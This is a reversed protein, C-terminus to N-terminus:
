CVLVCVCSSVLFFVFEIKLGSFATKKKKTLIIGAVVCAAVVIVAAIIVIVLTNGSDTNDTVPVTEPTTDPATEVPDTNGTDPKSTGKVFASMKASLPM